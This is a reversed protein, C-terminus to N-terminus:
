KNKHKKSQKQKETSQPKYSGVRRNDDETEGRFFTLKEDDDAEFKKLESKYTQWIDEAVRIRWDLVERFTFERITKLNQYCDNPKFGFM